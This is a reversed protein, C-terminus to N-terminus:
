IGGEEVPLGFCAYPFPCETKIKCIDGAKGDYYICRACIWSHSLNRKVICLKNDATFVDGEKYVKPM